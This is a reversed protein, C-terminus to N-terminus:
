KFLAKRIRAVELFQNITQASPNHDLLEFGVAFGGDSNSRCYIVRFLGRQASEAGPLVVEFVILDDASLPTQVNAAFGMASIDKLEAQVNCRRGDVAFVDLGVNAQVDVANRLYARRETFDPM